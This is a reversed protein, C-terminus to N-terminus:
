RILNKATVIGAAGLAYIGLLKGWDGKQGVALAVLDYVLCGGLILDSAASALGFGVGTLIKTLTPASEGKSFAASGNHLFDLIGIGTFTKSVIHTLISSTSRRNLPPLRAVVYFIQTLTNIIVFIQSIGLHSSNWFVM